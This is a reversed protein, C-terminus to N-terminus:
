FHVAGDVYIGGGAWSVIVYGDSTSAGDTITVDYVGPAYSSGGGGGGGGSGGQGTTSLRASGGGGGGYWGAGGGGGGWSNLYVGPSVTYTQARAGSGGSTLGASTSTSYNGDGGVGGTGGTGAGGTGVASTTAGTGAGAVVGGLGGSGLNVGAGGSTGNTGGAGGDGGNSGGGSGGGGAALAVLTTGRRVTTTGGGGAGAQQMGLLGGFHAGGLRFGQAQAGDGTGSYDDGQQGPLLDLTEGPTVALKCVILAGGARTHGPTIGGAAGGIEVQLETIGAPVTFPQVTLSVYTFTASPM